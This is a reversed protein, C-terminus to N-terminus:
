AKAGCRQPESLAAMRPVGDLQKAVGRDAESHVGVPVDKFLHFSFGDALSVSHEARRLIRRKEVCRSANVSIWRYELGPPDEFPRPPM